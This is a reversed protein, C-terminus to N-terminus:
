CLISLYINFQYEKSRVLYTLYINDGSTCDTRTENQETLIYYMLRCLYYVCTSTFVHVHVHVHTYVHVHIYM